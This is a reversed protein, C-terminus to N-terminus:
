GTSTIRSIWMVVYLSVNSRNNTCSCCLNNWICFLADVSLWYACYLIQVRPKTTFLNECSFLFSGKNIMRQFCSGVSIWVLDLFSYYSSSYACIYYSLVLFLLFSQLVVCGQQIEYVIKFCGLLLICIRSSVQWM